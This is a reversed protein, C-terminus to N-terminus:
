EKDTKHPETVREAVKSLTLRDKRDFTNKLYVLTLSSIGNIGASVYLPAIGQLLGYTFWLLSGIVMFALMVWSLDRLHRSRVAKVVEPILHTSGFATALYGILDITEMSVTESSLIGKM